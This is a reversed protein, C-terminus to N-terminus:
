RANELRQRFRDFWILDFQNYSFLLIKHTAVTALDSIVKFVWNTIPLVIVRKKTLSGVTMIKCNLLSNVYKGFWLPDRYIYLSHKVWRPLRLKVQGQLSFLHRARNESSM